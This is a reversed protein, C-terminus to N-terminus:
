RRARLAEAARRVRRAVRRPAERHAGAVAPTDKARLATFLETDEAGVIGAGAALARYVGVHGLDLHLGRVGAQALASLILSLV